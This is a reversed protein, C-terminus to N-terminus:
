APNQSTALVSRTKMKRPTAVPLHLAALRNVAALRDKKSPQAYQKECAARVLKGLSTGQQAALRTLQEHLQASLLVTTKQSLKM